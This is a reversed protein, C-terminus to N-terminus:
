KTDKSNNRQEDKEGKVKKTVKMMPRPADEKIQGNAKKADWEDESMEVEVMDVEDLNESKAAPDLASSVAIQANADQKM